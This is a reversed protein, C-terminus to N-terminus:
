VYVPQVLESVGLLSLLKRPFYQCHLAEKVIEQKVLELDPFNCEECVVLFDIVVAYWLLLKESREGALFKSARELFTAIDNDVFAQKVLLWEHMQPLLVLNNDDCFQVYSTFIAFLKSLIKRSKGALIFAVEDIIQTVLIALVDEPILAVRQSGWSSSLPLTELTGQLYSLLQSVLAIAESFNMKRAENRVLNVVLHIRHIFLIDFGYEDELIADSTLAAIIRIRASDFDGLCYDLYAQAPEQFAQYLLSGQHSLSAVEFHTRSKAFIKEASVFDGSRSAILGQARMQSLERLLLQETHSLNHQMQLQLFYGLLEDIYEGASKPPVTIQQQCGQHYYELTTRIQTDYNLSQPNPIPSQSIFPKMPM